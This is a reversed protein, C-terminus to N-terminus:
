LEESIKKKCGLWDTIKLWDTNESGLVLWTM